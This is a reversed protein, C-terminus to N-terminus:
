NQSEDKAAQRDKAAMDGSVSNAKDHGEGIPPAVQQGQQKTHSAIIAKEAQWAAFGMLGYVGIRGLLSLASIHEVKQSDERIKAHLERMHLPIEAIPVPKYNSNEFM